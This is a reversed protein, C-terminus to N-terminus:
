PGEAAQNGSCSAFVPDKIREFSRGRHAEYHVYQINVQDNTPLNQTM